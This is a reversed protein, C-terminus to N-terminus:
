ADGLAEDIEETISELAAVPDKAGTIPRGVVLYHAGMRIAEGPAMVRKQDGLSSKAPRIGPTIRLFDDGVAGRLPGLEQPSCVIGDLGANEALRALRLVSEEPSAAYGIEAVDSKDLSTLVTVGTLLPRPERGEIADRAEAMMERGGTAHVNIMWVGLEAAARCAGAVTKPIDHFKLDLFVGFGLKSLAEVAPPGSRTFLENGVKVRCRATDLRSAIELAAAIDAVDLAVVIRPDPNNEM